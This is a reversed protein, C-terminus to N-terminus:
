GESQQMRFSQKNPFLIFLLTLAFGVGGMTWFLFQPGQHDMMFGGILNGFIGALGAIGAISGFLTQATAKVNDPSLLNVIEMVASITLVFGIGDLLQLGILLWAPPAFGMLFYKLAFVFVGSIMFLMLNHKKVLKAVLIFMPIEILAAMGFNWGVFELPYGLREYYIPLFASNIAILVANIMGLFTFWIFRRNTILARIGQKMQSRHQKERQVNPFKFVIILLAISLISYMPFIYDFGIQKYVWGASFTVLTWSAAGWLRVQGYTYGYKPAQDVAIADVIPM